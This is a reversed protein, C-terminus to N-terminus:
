LRLRRSPTTLRWAETKRIRLCLRQRSLSGDQYSPLSHKILLSPMVWPQDVLCRHQHTVDISHVLLRPCRSYSNCIRPFSLLNMSQLTLEWTVPFYHLNALTDYITYIGSSISIIATTTQYAVDSNFQKLISALIYAEYSLSYM